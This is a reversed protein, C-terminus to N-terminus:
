ISAGKELATIRENISRVVSPRPEAALWSNLAARDREFGVTKIAQVESLNSLDKLVLAVGSGVTDGLEIEEVAGRAIYDPYSGKVLTIKDAEVINLGQRLLVNETLLRAERGKGEISQVTLTIEKTRSPPYLKDPSFFLGGAKASETKTPTAVASNAM